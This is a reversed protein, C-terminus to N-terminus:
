KLCSRLIIVLLIYLVLISGISTFAGAVPSPCCHSPGSPYGYFPAVSPKMNPYVNAAHINALGHMGYAPMLNANANINPGISSM